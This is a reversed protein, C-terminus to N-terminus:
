YNWYKQLSSIVLCNGFKKTAKSLLQRILMYEEIALDLAERLPKSGYDLQKLSELVDIFEM